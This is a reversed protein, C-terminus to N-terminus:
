GAASNYSSLAIKFLKYFIAALSIAVFIIAIYTLASVKGTFILAPFYVAVGIPLMVTLVFAGFIGFISLPWTGADTIIDNMNAMWYGATFWKYWAFVFFLLFFLYAINGAALALVFAILEIPTFSLHLITYVMLVIGGLVSAIFYKNGPSLLSIVIPVPKTLYIDLDGKKLKDYTGRISFLYYLVAIATNNVSTLFMLQYYSWGPIGGSVSYLVTVFVYSTIPVLSSYAVFVAFQMRYQLRDKWDYLQQLAFIIIYKRINEMM